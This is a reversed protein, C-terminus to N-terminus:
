EVLRRVQEFAEAAEEVGVAFGLAESERRKATVVGIVRGDRLVMPGGSNGPNIAADSQIHVVGGLDRFAGVIGRTVTWAQEQPNGICFVDDGLRAVSSRSLRAYTAPSTPVRLLALDRAPDRAVVTAVYAKEDKTTVLIRDVGDIVHDNTLVLGGSDIFFGSGHGATTIVLVVADSIRELVNPTSTDIAAEAHRGLSLAEVVPAFPRFSAVLSGLSAPDELSSRRVADLQRELGQAAVSTDSAVRLWAVAETRRGEDEARIAQHLHWSVYADALAISMEQWFKERAEERAAAETAIARPERNENGGTDRPHVGRVGWGSAETRGAITRSMLVIKHSADIARFSATAEGIVVREYREFIYPEEIPEEIFPETRNLRRLLGALQLQAGVLIWEVSAGSNKQIELARVKARQDEVADHVRRYEPNELKQTSAIFSSHVAESARAELTNATCRPRAVELVLDLGSWAIPNEGVFSVHAEAPFSQRFRQELDASRICDADAGRWVLGIRAQYRADRCENVSVSDPAPWQELASQYTLCAAVLGARGGARRYEGAVRDVQERFVASLREELGQLEACNPCQEQGARVVRYANALNPITPNRLAQQAPEEALAVVARQYLAAADENGPALQLAEKSLRFAAAMDSSEAAATADSLAQRAALERLLPQAATVMKAHPVTLALARAGGLDGARALQVAEELKRLVREREGRLEESLREAGPDDPSWSVAINLYKERGLLDSPPLALGSEVAAAAGLQLARDLAEKFKLKNPSLEVAKRLLSIAKGYEGAAIAEEADRSYRGASEGQSAGATMLGLLACLM